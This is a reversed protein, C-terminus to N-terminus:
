ISDLGWIFLEESNFCETGKGSLDCCLGLHHDVEEFAWSRLVNKIKLPAPQPTLLVLQSFGTRRFAHAIIKKLISPSTAGWEHIVGIMDYGKGLIGYGSIHDGVRMVILTTDPISLLLQFEESSREITYRSQCRLNMLSSIENKTLHSATMIESTQRDYDSEFNRYDLYFRSEQGFPTFGLKKYFDILDSWLILMSLSQERAYAKIKELLLQMIGQGRFSEDTAVNGVLGIKTIPEKSQNVVVRPWLNAHAVLRSSSKKEPITIGFSYESQDKTLVIPYEESILFESNPERLSEQLLDNRQSYFDPSLIKFDLSRRSRSYDRGVEKLIM